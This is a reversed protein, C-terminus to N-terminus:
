CCTTLFFYSFPIQFTLAVSRGPPFARRLLARRHYFMFRLLPCSRHRCHAPRFPPPPPFSSFAPRPFFPLRGPWQLHTTRQRRPSHLDAIDQPLCGPNAANPLLFVPALARINAPFCSFYRTSGRVDVRIRGHCLPIFLFSFHHVLM